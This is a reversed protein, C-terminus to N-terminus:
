VGRMFKEMYKYHRSIAVDTLILVGLFMRTFPLQAHTFADLAIRDM